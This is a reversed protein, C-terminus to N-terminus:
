SLLYRVGASSWDHICYVCIWIDWELVAGTMFVTGVYGAIESRCQELWSYWVWMDLYRVGASSRDHIGYGCIWIDWQPVAGTMFVTCVYGSIESRCQEMGYVCIWIDWEPVAGYRVCMDLYRVETSSWVTCVYGSIENRCQELWSYCVWMDLYRV